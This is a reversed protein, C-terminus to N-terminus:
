ASWLTLAYLALPITLLGLVTSITVEATIEEPSTNYRQAFM